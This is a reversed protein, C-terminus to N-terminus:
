LVIHLLIYVWGVFYIVYKVINLMIEYKIKILEYEEIFEYLKFLETLFDVCYTLTNVQVNEPMDKAFEKKLANYCIIDESGSKYIFYRQYVSIEPLLDKILIEPIDTSPLIRLELVENLSELNVNVLVKISYLIYSIIPPIILLWINKYFFNFKNFYIVDMLFIFSVYLEIGIKLGFLTYIATQKKKLLFTGISLLGKDLYSCYEDYAPAENKIYIDLELLSRSIWTLPNWPHKLAEQFWSTKINNNPFKKRVYLRINLILLLLISVACIIYSFVFFENEVPFINRPLRVFIIRGYIIFFVVSLGLFIFFLDSLKIKM